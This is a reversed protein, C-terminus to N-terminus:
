PGCTDFPSLDGQQLTQGLRLRINPDPRIYNYRITFDTLNATSTEGFTGGVSGGSMDDLVITVLVYRAKVASAGSCAYEPIPPAGLSSTFTPLATTATRYSINGVNDALPGNFGINNVRANEVALDVLKSYRGSRSQLQSAAGQSDTLPTTSGSKFGGLIYMYGNSMVSTHYYRADTYANYRMSWMGVHGTGYIPATQVDTQFASCNGSSNASCGGSLYLHGNRASVSAGYRGISLNAGINWTSGVTGNSNITAYQVDDKFTTCSGASMSSCGALVYMNGGYAVANQMFRGTTFGSGGTSAWSGLSGDANIQAYEITNQFTTCNGSTTASCGGVAYLYGNYTATSLGYRATGLSNTNTAWSGISDGTSSNLAVYKIDGLFSSCFGGTSSCGGIVYLYGNYAALTHGYRNTAPNGATLTNWTLTGDAAISSYRTDNTSTACGNTTTATIDTCGGSLYIYGKYAVASTQARATTFSGKNSGTGTYDRGGNNIPASDHTDLFDGISNCNNLASLNTCGGVVILQNNVVVGAHRFRKTTISTNTSWSGFSGNANIKAKYVASFTNAGGNVGNNGGAIFLYGNSFSVSYENLAASFSSGSGGNIAANADVWSGSSCTYGAPCSTSLAGAGSCGADPFSVGTCITAFRVDDTDNLVNAWGGGSGGGVIYFRGNDVFTKTGQRTSPMNVGSLSFSGVGGTTTLPAHYITSFYTPTTGRVGGLLYMYGNYVQMGLRMRGNTDSYNTAHNSIFDAVATSWNGIDGPTSSTTCGSVTNLGTCIPASQVDSWNTEDQGVGSANSWGGAIYIYGNYAAASLNLRGPCNGPTTCFKGAENTVNNFTTTANTWTGLTGDSNISAFFTTNLMNPTGGAQSVTGGIIYIFGGVAVSAFNNRDAATYSGSSYAGTTGPSTIQASNTTLQATGAANQGGINFLYGSYAVFVQRGTDAGLASTTNWSGLAGNAFIPAYSTVTNATGSSNLGGTIYFYGNYVLARGRYNSSTSVLSTTSTWSSLTGDENIRAYAVNSNAAGNYGGAVYLFGNYVTMYHENRTSPLPTGSLTTWSGLNGTALIPAYQVDDYYTTLTNGGSLYVYGNYAVAAANSRATTFVTSATQWSGMLGSGNTDLKVYITTDVTNIGGVGGVAYLYGNYVFSAPFSRTSPFPTGNSWAGITGNTNLKAYKAAATTTGQVVYVYGNYVGYAGGVSTTGGPLATQASWSGITGGTVGARSIQGSTSLDINGENNGAEFDTASTIVVSPDISYAGQITKLNEAVVTLQNDRLEFRASSSGAKGEKTTIIPTPIGFVLNTKEANERAKEILERDNDSGYSMNSFLTPDASYLGIGGSGDPLQRAELSKPLELNYTFRLTDHKNSTVVIDEKLGNNKLTYIAQPGNDLPFVIRGQETKGPLSTFQPVLKFSLQTNVDHYTVGKKPDSPVDLSYLLKTKDDASGVQKQLSDLPNYEKIAEKNFEYTQSKTNYKLKSALARNNSGVLNLTDQSLKYRRNTLTNQVVPIAVSLVILLALGANALRWKLQYKRDQKRWWRVINVM